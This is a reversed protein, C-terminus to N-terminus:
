LVKNPITIVQPLNLHNYSISSITKNNDLYLNGNVHYVYDDGTNAGDKFDGLKGNNLAVTGQDTVKTLKNSNPQYEYILNDIKESANIKLGWQQMQKINGNYDYALNPDIGDGMKVNFNVGANHNFTGSTYQTFDAKLLRNAADYDYDYKRKEGDGKSRWVTGEINGNYQPKAYLQNGIINNNTKDYGLDFGFYNNANAPLEKAYGRNMGLLWGRINYEFKQTELQATPSTPALRKEVLQGLKDYKNEAITRYTAMTGGNVLTNSIKKETKTVRGLDDYTMQSVIVTEQVGGVGGSLPLAQQKNVMVLPQGAWTYQTTAIDIGGTINTSQTQIPRGKEDYFPITYLYTAGGSAPNLVKTRTGTVMGKLQQTAANAQPYPWTTNSAQQFYTDFVNNYTATLGTSYNALWTYNDYFTNSLVENTSYNALSPYDTTSANAANLHYSLNNYNAPDTIIGTASPRNLFDYTSYMWKQQARMNADQTLVLRDRSDYVMYVEGASPVKKKVMRNREDYEYRFCQEALLTANALQWNSGALHKVGEPQIVCRLNNLDDYIYYTCLWGVNNAGAGNDDAATLQVKKLIVKGEKEKFEIVQKKHEDLTINKYLQGAEYVGNNINTALTYTGFNGIIPDNTVNWIKVDDASTNIFYKIQVNRKQAPDTNTESGAWSTGPAYSDTPRNLPSPEFNTKSYFHTEGPYQATAFAQQQVLANTKYSGNTIATNSGGPPVNNAAFPLYKIVERGFEDYVIPAVMDAFENGSSQLSGQKIVTQLPRGLGDIYQTTQKVDKVQKTIFVNANQEPATADWTRVFNIPITPQQAYLGVSFLLTCVMCYINWAKGTKNIQVM